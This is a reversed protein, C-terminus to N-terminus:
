LRTDALERLPQNYLYRKIKLTSTKEFDEKRLGWYRVQAYGPLERMYEKLEDRLTRLISDAPPRSEGYREEMAEDDIVLVAGVDEGSGGHKKHPIVLAEGVLPHRKLHHEVEEPYVNKGGGTVIVNKKRGTIQLYGDEHIIGLDGTHFWGDEDIVDRTEDDMKYYGLFVNPGSICVEGVGDSGPDYIKASVGPVPLGVCEHRVRTPPTFHTVPSTETLGYGQMMPVGLRTFFRSTVPDIAAGGTIFFRVSGLGAKNRLSRFITKGWNMRLTEGLGALGMMVKFLGRVVVSRKALERMMRQHMKEFMLPVSGMMTIKADRIDALIEASRLRRAFTLTMGLYLPHLVGNTWQLAHHMPLLVLIGDGPGSDTLQASAAVNSMINRQSLMVGKSHGTTGSTFLIAALDDLTRPPFEDNRQRGEAEIDSFLRTGMVGCPDFSIITNLRNIGKEDALTDLFSCQSFLMRAGSREILSAAAPVPLMRDIPICVGGARQIGLYAIAWNPDNEAYIAVPDGPKVGAGILWRAVDHVRDRLERFLITDYGHGNWTQMAVLSEYREACFDAFESLPFVGFHERFAPYTKESV